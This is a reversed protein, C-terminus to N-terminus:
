GPRAVRRVDRLVEARAELRVLPADGDNEASELLASAVTSGRASAFNSALTAAVFAAAADVAGTVSFSVPSQSLFRYGAM